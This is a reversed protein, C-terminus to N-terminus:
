INKIIKAPVGAILVNPPFSKTVVSGSAVVVNDGLCVGPNIVSRGGIWVNHGITIPYAMEVGNNRENPNLPHTATYIHVSPGLMCNHGFTVPACDLITCDYNAYFHNGISINYGYDFKFNPEIHFNEGTTALISKLIKNRLSSDNPHSQNYKQCIIKAQLRDNILIPDEACYPLSSIMKQKESLM